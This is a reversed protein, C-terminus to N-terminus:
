DKINVEVRQPGATESSSIITITFSCRTSNGNFDLSINILHLVSPINGLCFFSFPKKQKEDNMTFALTLVKPATSYILIDLFFTKNELTFLIM